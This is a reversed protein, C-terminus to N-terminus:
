VRPQRRVKRGRSITFKEDFNVPTNAWSPGVMVDMVMVERKGDGWPDQRRAPLLFEPEQIGIDVVHARAGPHPLFALSTESPPAVNRELRYQVYLFPILGL